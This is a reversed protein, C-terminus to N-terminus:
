EKHEPQRRVVIILTQRVEVRVVGVIDSEDHENAQRECQEGKLRAALDPLGDACNYQYADARRDGLDPDRPANTPRTANPAPRRRSALRTEITLRIPKTTAIASPMIM